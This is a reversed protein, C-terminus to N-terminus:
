IKQVKEVIMQRTGNERVELKGSFELMGLESLLDKFSRYNDPFFIAEVMGDTIEVKAFAMPGSRKTGVVRFEIVAGCVSEGQPISRARLQDREKDEAIGRRFAEIDGLYPQFDPFMLRIHSSCDITADRLCFVAGVKYHERMKEFETQTSTACHIDVPFYGGIGLALCDLNLEYCDSQEFISVDEIMLVTSITSLINEEAPIIGDANDM